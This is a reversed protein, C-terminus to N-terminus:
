VTTNINQNIRVDYQKGALFLVATFVSPQYGSESPIQLGNLVHPKSLGFVSRLQMEILITNSDPTLNNEVGHPIYNYNM